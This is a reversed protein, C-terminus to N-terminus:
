ESGCARDSSAGGVFCTEGTERLAARGGACSFFYGDFGEDDL